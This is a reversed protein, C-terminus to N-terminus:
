EKLLSVTAAGVDIGCAVGLQKMTDIYQITISNKECFEKINSVVREDADKAIYVVKVNNKQLEKLTQKIGVSKKSYKLSDLM